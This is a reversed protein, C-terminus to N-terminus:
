HINPSLKSHWVYCLGDLLVKAKSQTMNYQITYITSMSYLWSLKETQLICVTTPEFGLRPLVKERPTHLQIYNIQKNPM